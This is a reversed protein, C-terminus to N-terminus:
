LPKVVPTAWCFMSTAESLWQLSDPFSLFNLCMSQTSMSSEERLMGPKSKEFTPRTSFQREMGSIIM